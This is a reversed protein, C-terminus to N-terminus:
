AFGPLMTNSTSQEQPGRRPHYASAISRRMIPFEEAIYYGLADSVHTRMPNSKDLETLSNGNPDTKWYVQEFDRILEGCQSHIVMRRDGAHNRLMANM